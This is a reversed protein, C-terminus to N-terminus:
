RGQVTSPLGGISAVVARAFAVKDIESSPEMSAAISELASWTNLGEALKKNLSDSTFANKAADALGFDDFYRHM